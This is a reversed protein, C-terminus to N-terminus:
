LEIINSVLFKYKFVRSDTGPVLLCYAIPFLPKDRVPNSGVCGAIRLYWRKYFEAFM